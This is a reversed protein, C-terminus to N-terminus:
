SVGGSGPQPAADGLSRFVAGAVRTGLGADGPAASIAGADLRATSGGQQWAAPVGREAVLRALEGRLQAAVRARDSPPVGHLVLEDIHIRINNSM